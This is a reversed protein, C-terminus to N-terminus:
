YTYVINELVFFLCFRILISNCLAGKNKKVKIQICLFTNYDCIIKFQPKQCVQTNLIGQAHNLQKQFVNTHSVFKTAASSFSKRVLSYPIKSNTAGKGFNFSILNQPYRKVSPATIAKKRFNKFCVSRAKQQMSDHLMKRELFKSFSMPNM